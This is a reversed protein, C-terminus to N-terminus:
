RGRIERVRGELEALRKAQPSAPDVAYRRADKLRAEAQVYQTERLYAAAAALHIEAMKLKTATDDPKWILAQAYQALAAEPKGAPGALFDGYRVLLAQDERKRRVLEQFTADAENVRGVRTAFAILADGAQTGLPDSQMASGYSTIVRDVLPDSAVAVPATPKGRPAPAPAPRAAAAAVAHPALLEAIAVHAEGYDPRAAVARDYFALAREEEPKLRSAAPPGGPAGIPVPASEAKGAWARGALYAAEPQAADGLRALADDYRRESLLSRAEALAADGSAGGGPERSCAAAAALLSLLVAGRARGRRV